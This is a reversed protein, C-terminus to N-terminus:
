GKVAGATIGSVIQRQFILVMLVLPLTVIVCAAMLSLFMDFQIGGSPPIGTFNVLGLPVTGNTFAMGSILISAFLYENWSAIFVLIATTFVGPNALPHNIKQILQFNSAGDVRAALILERPIEQFFNYLLYVTLPLNFAIYPILLGPIYTNTIPFTTNVIPWVINGWNVYLILLPIAVIIGPFMTMSLIGVMIAPKGRFSFIALVYGAFSAIIVCLVTTIISIYASNIIFVQFHFTTFVVNYNFTTPDSPILEFSRRTNSDVFSQLLAFVFPFTCWIITIIVGIYLVISKLINEMKAKFYGEAIVQNSSHTNASM